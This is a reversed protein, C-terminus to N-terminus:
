THLTYTLKLPGPLRFFCVPSTTGILNCILSQWNNVVMSLKIVVSIKCIVLQVFRLCFTAMNSMICWLNRYRTIYHIIINSISQIAREAPNNQHSRVNCFKVSIGLSNFLTSDNENKFATDLNCYIEKINTVHGCILKQFLSEAVESSKRSKLTDTNTVLM